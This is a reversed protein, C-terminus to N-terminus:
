LFLFCTPFYKQHTSRPPCRHYGARRAPTPPSTPPFVTELPRHIISHFGPLPERPADRDANEKHINPARAGSQGARCIAPPRTGDGNCHLRQHQAPLGEPWAPEQLGHRAQPQLSTHMAPAAWSSACFGTLLCGSRTVRLSGEVRRTCLLPSSGKMEVPLKGSSSFAQNKCFWAM